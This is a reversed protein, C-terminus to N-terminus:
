LVVPPAHISIASQIGIFRHAPQHFGNPPLEKRQGRLATVATSIAVAEIPKCKM